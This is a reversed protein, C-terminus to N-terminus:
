KKNELNITPEVKQKYWDLMKSTHFKEIGYKGNISLINKQNVFWDPRDDLIIYPLGVFNNTKIFEEIEKCRPIKKENIQRPTIGLVLNRIEKPFIKKLVYLSYHNRWSSSIVIGVHPFMKSYTTCFDPLKTLLELKQPYEPHLVGDFDLFILGKINNNLEM